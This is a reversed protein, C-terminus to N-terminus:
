DHEKEMTSLKVKIMIKGDVATDAPINMELRKLGKIKRDLEMPPPDLSVVSLKLEPHMVSRLRLEKGGQRLVAGGDVLGVEATTMLQWTIKETNEAVEIRDEVMLSTPGDKVFRRVASNLNGGYVATLDFSAEPQQGDRFDVLPAFGDVAFLEDNVTLTSHGFNNKTLLTWRESDQGKGWLNFGTKELENYNQNGPDVVWRIGDLEFVFSGADMNGHSTTAKGGKGGFYYRHPDNEGGSFVVIPNGGEGKWATPVKEGGREEYQSLWAMAAGDLRSLKGVEKPPLLFRDTEFFTSNGSKAAFWALVTDGNKSRRDGCDAFNYYWESPANCLSRFLASEMFGPSASIGFDSGLASELMVITIVSYGTGYGWYTSGEPYVGDPAYQKLANPMADLARRITEAALEPETEALTLAAAIMGGNCVQNWNNNGSVIRATGKGDADLGKRLLAERAQEVTAQPLDWATWDLALAVALSMEAVDLFHSPNWDEFACVALLEENLRELAAPDKEVLYVVGLMNVRYLMERSTDLLRRGVMRRELLPEKYIGDANLRISAYRNKLVPDNKIKTKLGALISPSFVLRPHSKSLHKQLYDVSVPNDLTAREAAAATASIGAILILIVLRHIM